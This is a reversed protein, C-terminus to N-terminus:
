LKYVVRNAGMKYLTNGDIEFEYESEPIFAVKDGKHVGQQELINNGIAVTGNLYEHMSTEFRNNNKSPKIFCYDMLSVWDDDGRKYAFITDWDALFDTESMWGSSNKLKGKVNWYRRFVNHHVIVIDGVELPTEIVPLTKVVGLRNTYIFDEISVETNLILGSDTINNYRDGFPSLVVKYLSQKM